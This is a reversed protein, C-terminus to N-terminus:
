NIIPSIPAFAEDFSAQLAADLDALGAAIGLDALSTVGHEAIGCPVIGSFHELDPAVNIALGHMTVWRRVRVGIAAIKQESGPPASPWRRWRRTMASSGARVRGNWGCM